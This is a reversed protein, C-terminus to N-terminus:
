SRSRRWAMSRWSLGRGCSSRTASGAKALDIITRAVVMTARDDRDVLRLAKLTDEFAQLLVRADEPAFAHDNRIILRIPMVCGVSCMSRRSTTCFSMLYHVTSKSPATSPVTNSLERRLEGLEVFKDISRLLHDASVQRELSFEYFLAAQEVQPHGMM